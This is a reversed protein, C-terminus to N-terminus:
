DLLAQKLSESLDRMVIQIRRLNRQEPLCGMFLRYKFPAFDESCSVLRQDSAGLFKPLVGAGGASLIMERTPLVGDIIASVSAEPHLKTVSESLKIEGPHTWIKKVAGKDERRKYLGFRVSGLDITKLSPPPKNGIRLVIDAEYKSLDAFRNSTVIELLIKPHNAIFESVQPAFAALVHESTSIRVKGYEFRKEEDDSQIDSLEQEAREAISFLRRGHQTPSLKGNLREFLQLGLLAELRELRRAVTTRDVNLESAAAMLSKGRMLALLVPVESWPLNIHTNKSM